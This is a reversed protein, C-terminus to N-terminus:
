LDEHTGIKRWGLTLMFLAASWTVISIGWWIGWLGWALTFTLTHIIIIPAILQRYLGVWLGIMPRKLGQFAFVTVFLIPYAALTVASVLLCDYGITIVAEDDTFFRLAPERLFWLIFGGLFMIVAGYKINTMWAERVRHPLKAGHNQGIISLAAFNLGITPMLIIQEIRMAVGTAAIAEKDFHQVFWNIVFMGIAITLMNLGAPIAQGAIKKLIALDPILERPSIKKFLDSKQLEVWLYIAGGLHVVLTALALGTVGMKPLDWWGLIFLPTLIINAFFGAILYNRYPITNGQASLASNLVIPLLMLVSGLLLVNMYDLCTQLYSGEAGLWQFILPSTFWGLFSMILAGAIVFLIAQAFYRRCDETNGEGLANSLLATTGQSIGSGVALIIFFVPFSLALAALAETGIKGAYYTDVVNFMTNFFMGISMPLAIRWILSSIPDTTLSPTSNM